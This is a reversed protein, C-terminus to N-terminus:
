NYVVILLARGVHGLNGSCLAVVDDVGRGECGLELALMLHVAEERGLHHGVQRLAVGHGHPM